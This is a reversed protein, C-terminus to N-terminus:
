AFNYPLGNVLIEAGAGDASSKDAFGLKFDGLTDAVVKKAAIDYDYAVGQVVALGTNDIKHVGGILFEGEEGNKYAGCSIGAKDGFDIAEGSAVDAGVVKTRVYGARTYTKM